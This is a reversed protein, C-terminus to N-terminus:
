STGRSFNINDSSDLSNRAEYKVGVNMVSKVAAKRQVSDQGPPGLEFCSV